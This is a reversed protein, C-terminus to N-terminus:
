FEQIRRVFEVNLKMHNERYVSFIEQKNTQKDKWSFLYFESSNVFARYFYFYYYYYTAIYLM